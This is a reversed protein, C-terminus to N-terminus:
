LLFCNATSLSLPHSVSVTLYALPIFSTTYRTTLLFLPTIEPPFRHCYEKRNHSYSKQKSSQILTSKIDWIFNFVYVFLSSQTSRIFRVWIGYSTEGVVIFLGPCLLYSPHDHVIRTVKERYVFNNLNTIKLTLVSSLFYPSNWFGRLKWSKYIVFHQM